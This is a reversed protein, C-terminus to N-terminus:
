KFTSLSMKGTGQGWLGPTSLATFFAIFLASVWLIITFLLRSPNAGPQSKHCQFKPGEPKDSPVSNVPSLLM